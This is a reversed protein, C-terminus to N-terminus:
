AMSVNFASLFAATERPGFRAPAVLLYSRETAAVQFKRRYRNRSDFRFSRGLQHFIARSLQEHRKGLGRVDGLESSASPGFSAWACGERGFTRLAHAALAESTGIPACPSAVHHDLLYGRRADLRM